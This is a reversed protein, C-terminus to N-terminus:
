FKSPIETNFNGGIKSYLTHSQSTTTVKGNEPHASSVNFHEVYLRAYM